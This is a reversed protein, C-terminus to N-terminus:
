AGTSQAAHKEHQQKQYPMWGCSFPKPNGSSEHDFHVSTRSHSNGNADFAVLNVCDESHVFVVLAACLQTSLRDDNYWVVRGITPATKV